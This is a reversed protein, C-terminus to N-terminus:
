EGVREWNRQIKLLYLVIAAQIAPFIFGFTGGEVAPRFFPTLFSNNFSLLPAVFYLLFLYLVFAAEVKKTRSGTSLLLMLAFDRLIFMGASLLISFVPSSYGDGDKTYFGDAWAMWPKWASGSSHFVFGLLLLSIFILPFTLLWLPADYNLYSFNREKINKFLIKLQTIEKAEFIILVYSLLITHLAFSICILDIIRLDNHMVGHWSLGKVVSSSIIFSYWLLSTNKYNLEKRFAQHLGVM